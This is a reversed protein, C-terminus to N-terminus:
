AIILKKTTQTITFCLFSFCRVNPCNFISQPMMHSNKKKLPSFETGIKQIKWLSIKQSGINMVIHEWPLKIIFFRNRVDTPDYFMIRASHLGHFNYFKWNKPRKERTKPAGVSYLPNQSNKDFSLFFVYRWRELNSAEFSVIMNRDIELCKYIGFTNELRNRWM